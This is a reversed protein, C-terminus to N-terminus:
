TEMGALCGTTRRHDVLIFILTRAYALQKWLTLRHERDDQGWGGMNLVLMSGQLNSWDPPPRQRYWLDHGTVSLKGLQKKWEDNMIGWQELTAAFQKDGRTTMAIQQKGRQGTRDTYQTDQTHQETTDLAPTEQINSEIQRRKAQQQTRASGLSWVVKPKKYTGAGWRVQKYPCRSPLFGPVNKKFVWRPRNIARKRNQM